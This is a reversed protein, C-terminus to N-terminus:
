IGWVDMVTIVHRIGAKNHQKHKKLLTDDPLCRYMTCNPDITWTLQFFFFSKLYVLDFYNRPIAYQVFTCTCLQCAFAHVYRAQLGEATLNSWHTWVCSSVQPHTCWGHQPQLGQDPYRTAAPHLLLAAWAWVAGSFLVSADGASSCPWTFIIQDCAPKRYVMSHIQHHFWSSHNKIVLHSDM